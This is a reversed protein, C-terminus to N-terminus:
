NEIEYSRHELVLSEVLHEFESPEDRECIFLPVSLELAYNRCIQLALSQELEIRTVDAVLRDRDLDSIRRERIIEPADRVFVIMTPSLASVIDIPIEILKSGNNVLSHGDFIVVKDSYEAVRHQFERVLRAQNLLIDKESSLRLDDIEIESQSASRILDSAVVHIVEERCREIVDNALSSKGVGSVGFLAILARQEIEATMTFQTKISVYEVMIEEFHSDDIGKSRLFTSSQRMM